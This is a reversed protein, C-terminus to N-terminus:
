RAVALPLRTVLRLSLQSIGYALADLGQFRVDAVTKPTLASSSSTVNGFAPIRLNMANSFTAMIIKFCYQGAPTKTPFCVCLNKSDFYGNEIGGYIIYVIKIHMTM